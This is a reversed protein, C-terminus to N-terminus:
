SHSIKIAWDHWFPQHVSNFHFVKAVTVYANLDWPDVQEELAQLQALITSATQPEHQFADGFTKHSAMTVSSTKRSVGALMASEPTDVVYSALPTFMYQLSGLADSMMVGIHAAIKLLELIFELCEHLLRNELVGCIKSDTHIFKPVPLLALLLYAHNSAKMCFSIDLNALSLLLSHAMRGGTM